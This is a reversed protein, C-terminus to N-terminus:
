KKFRKGLKAIEEVNSLWWWWGGGERAVNQMRVKKPRRKKQRKTLAQQAKEGFAVSRALATVILNPNTTYTTV